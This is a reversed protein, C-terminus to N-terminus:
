LALGYTLKLILQNQDQQWRDPIAAQVNHKYVIFLDGLPAFTWRLRSYTGVSASENDYQVFVSLNLDSSINLAARTAMLEKNFDGAPIRAINNEYMFELVLFSWLRMNLSLEIQNLQGGYFGGFEWSAMGNIARKSATQAELEYRVFHYPGEAIVVGDSIEFPAKLFEGQPELTFGFRDGSEFSANFPAMEIGYSEWQNLLDTYLSPSFKFKHQRIWRNDPRPMYDIKASYSVVGRRPVFGLSPDFDDGIRRYQVFWDFLDNPYDIKIGAASRDGELDERVNYLAWIGVIFNKNNGLTSTQYTFDMGATGAGQRGGPDGLTAIMGFSSEELINQKIRVVGMQSSPVLSDLARTQTFLSGFHTNRVKGNIKGGWMVPVEKGEYLGIRRSYFPMFSRGLGVGFDYIDAGELFFQRKEPYRLPFRTLNTQRSDVETEAFDTNITLQATIDSTIRQTLDLSPKWEMKAPESAEQTAKAVLSARPTLGIGPKFGPLEQLEGAHRTQGITYDMSIASWRNVELLRQIRREVNFGWTDLSKNYTLTSVPIRMEATWGLSDMRARAEWAGDWNPNESEGNNSVLADYRAAFPNIAFIYGNRGDHYTDLIVKLYDEDELEADRAKSFAVISEPEEDYCRIGLYINKPSLLVRVVTPYTPAQGAVPEIMTLEPISDAQTWAPDDLYGDIQVPEQSLMGRVSPRLSDQGTLHLGLSLSILVLISRYM